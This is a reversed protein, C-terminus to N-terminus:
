SWIPTLRYFLKKSTKKIGVNLIIAGVTLALSCPPKKAKGKLREYKKETLINKRWLKINLKNKM